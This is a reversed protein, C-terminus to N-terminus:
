RTRRYSARGPYTVTITGRVGRSGQASSVVVEFRRDDMLQAHTIEGEIQFKGKGTTEALIEGTSVKRIEVNMNDWTGAQQIDVTVRGPYAPSFELGRRSRTSGLTFTAETIQHRFLVTYPRGTSGDLLATGGTDPATTGEERGDAEDAGPVVRVRIPGAFNDFMAAEAVVRYRDVWLAISYVGRGRSGPHDPDLPVRVTVDACGDGDGPICVLDAGLAQWEQWDVRDVLAQWCAADVRGDGPDRCDADDLGPFPYRSQDLWLDWSVGDPLQGGINRIQVRIELAVGAPVEFRRCGEACEIRDGSVPDVYGLTMDPVFNPVAGDDASVPVAILPLLLVLLSVLACLTTQGKM